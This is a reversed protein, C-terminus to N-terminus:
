AQGEAGPPPNQAVFKMRLEYLVNDLLASEEGDLNGRTKQQLMELTDILYRAQQEDPEMTQTAPHPIEGLAILAQMSLSSLFMQFPSPAGERRRQPAAPERRQPEASGAGPAAGASRPALEPAKEKDQWVQEKWSEDVRKEISM